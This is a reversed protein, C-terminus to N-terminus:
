SNIETIRTKGDPLRVTFENLELKILKSGDPMKEGVRIQQIVKSEPQYLLLYREKPSVVRAMVNWIVKKEVMGAAPPAALAQGNREVGWLKVRELVALDLAIVPRALASAAQAAAMNQPKRAAVLPKPPELWLWSALAGLIWALLVWLGLRLLGPPLALQNM